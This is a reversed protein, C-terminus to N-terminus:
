SQKMFVDGALTRNLDALHHQGDCCLRARDVGVFHVMVSMAFTEQSAHFPQYFGYTSPPSEAEALSGQGASLMRM